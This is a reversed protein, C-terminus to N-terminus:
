ANKECWIKWAGKPCANAVVEDSLCVIEITGFYKKLLITFLNRFLRRGGILIYGKHVGMEKLVMIDQYLIAGMLFNLREAESTRGFLHTTRVAFCARSLGFRESFEAGKLAMDGSIEINMDKPLSDAIITSRMIALALEGALTTACATIRQNADIKVFKTHSGPLIVV